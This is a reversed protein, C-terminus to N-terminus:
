RTSRGLLSGIVEPTSIRTFELYSSTLGKSPVTRQQVPHPSERPFVRYRMEGQHDISISSFMRDSLSRQTFLRRHLKSQFGGKLPLPLDKAMSLTALGIIDRADIEDM